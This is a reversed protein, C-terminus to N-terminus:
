SRAGGASLRRCKAELDRLLARYPEQFLRLGETLLEAAVAEMDIGAARLRGVVRDAAEWGTTVACAVRGHDLFAELTHPPVTNVTDPGILPEVYHLDPYDPNKTSTSAWLARQVRAGRARLRAFRPGTFTERFLRYARKANANAAQGRLALLEPDGREELLRDVKTDVRSVFFSAVSAVGALARGAALRRELARLYAAMVERYATLSFILTININLGEVLCAEVAPLGEPTGPIKIMLNPRDVRGWLRQAERITEETDHALEPSVELSVYGDAGRTREYVPRLADCAAQVDAVALAEFLAAPALNEGRLRRIEGDYADSGTLAKHFIAPNSTMGTIGVALLQDMEGTTFLRREIHDYWLSQGQANLAAVRPHPM